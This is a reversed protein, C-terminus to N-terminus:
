PTVQIAVDNSRLTGTWAHLDVRTSTDPDFYWDQWVRYTMSLMYTGPAVADGTWFRVEFRKPLSEGAKILVFDEKRPLGPDSIVYSAELPKGAPGTLEYGPTATSEVAYFWQDEQSVNHIDATVWFVAVKSTPYQTTPVDSVAYSAQTPAIMLRLPQAAESSTTEAVAARPIAVVSLACFGVLLLAGCTKM